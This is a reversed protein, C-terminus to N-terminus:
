HKLVYETRLGEEEYIKFLLKLNDLNESHMVPMLMFMKEFKNEFNNYLKKQICELSLELAMADSAFSKPDNRFM